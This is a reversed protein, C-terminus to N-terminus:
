GAIINQANEFVESTTYAEDDCIDLGFYLPQGSSPLDLLLTSLVQHLTYPRVLPRLPRAHTLLTDLAVSTCHMICVYASALGPGTENCLAM